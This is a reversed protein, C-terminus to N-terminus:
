DIGQFLGENPLEYPLVLRTVGDIKELSITVGIKLDKLQNYIRNEYFIFTGITEKLELLMVNEGKLVYCGCFIFVKRKKEKLNLKTFNHNLLVLSDNIISKKIISNISDIIVKYMIPKKEKLVKYEVSGLHEIFLEQFEKEFQKM